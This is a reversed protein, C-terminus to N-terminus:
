LQLLNGDKVLAHVKSLESEQMLLRSCSRDLALSLARKSYDVLLQIVGFELHIKLAM